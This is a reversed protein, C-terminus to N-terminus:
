QFAQKEDYRHVSDEVLKRAERYSLDMYEMLLEYLMDLAEPEIRDMWYAKNKDMYSIIFEKVFFDSIKEM